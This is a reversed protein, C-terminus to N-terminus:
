SIAGLANLGPEFVEAAPAEDEDFTIERTGMTLVELKEAIPLLSKRLTAATELSDRIDAPQVGALLANAKNLLAELPPDEATYRAPFADVFDRFNTIVSDRIIKKKQGDETPELREMLRDVVQKFGSRLADRVLEGQRTAEENAKIFERTFLEQSTWGENPTEIQIWRWSCTFLDGIRAPDPWNITEALPGLEARVAATIDRYRAVFANILSLRRDRYDQLKADANPAVDMAFQRLGLGRFVTPNSYRALWREMESDIGQIGRLEPCDLIKATAQILDKKLTEPLADLKKLDVRRTMGVRTVTRLLFLTQKPVFSIKEPVFMTQQVAMPNLGQTELDFSAKRGARIAAAYDYFWIDFPPREGM